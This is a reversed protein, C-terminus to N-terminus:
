RQNSIKYRAANNIVFIKKANLHSINNQNYHAGFLKFEHRIKNNKIKKVSVFKFSNITYNFFILLTYKNPYLFIMYYAHTYRILNSNEFKYIM